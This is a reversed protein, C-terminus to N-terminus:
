EQRLDKHGGQRRRCLDRHSPASVSMAKAQLVPVLAELAVALVVPESVAQSQILLLPEHIGWLPPGSLGVLASCGTPGM